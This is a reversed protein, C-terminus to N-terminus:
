IKELAFDCAMRKKKWAQKFDTKKQINMQHM